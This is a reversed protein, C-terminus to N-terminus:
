ASFYMGQYKWAMGLVAKSYREFLLKFFVERDKALLADFLPDAHVQKAM